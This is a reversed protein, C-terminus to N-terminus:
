EKAVLKLWCNAGACSGERVVTFVASLPTLPQQTPPPTFDGHWRYHLETHVVRSSQRFVLLMEGDDTSETPITSRCESAEIKLRQCVMETPHYPGFLFLEDWTFPAIKAISVVVARRDRLERKLAWGVKGSSVFRYIEGCGSLSLALLTILAIRM